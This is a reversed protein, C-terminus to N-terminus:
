RHAAPSLRATAGEGAAVKQVHATVAEIIDNLARRSVKVTPRDILIRKGLDLRAFQHERGDSLKVLVLPSSVGGPLEAHVARWGSGVSVNLSLSDMLREPYQEVFSSAFQPYGDSFWCRPM